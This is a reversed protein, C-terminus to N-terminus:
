ANSWSFCKLAERKLEEKKGQPLAYYKERTIKFIQYFERDELYVNHDPDELFKRLRDPDINTPLKIRNEDRLSRRRQLKNYGVGKQYKKCHNPSDNSSSSEVEDNHALTPTSSSLPRPSKGIRRGDDMNGNQPRRFTVTPHNEAPPHTITTAKQFPTAGYVGSNYKQLFLKSSSRTPPAPVPPANDERNKRSVSKKEPLTSYTQPPKVSRFGPPRSPVLKGNGNISSSSSSLINYVPGNISKRKGDVQDKLEEREVFHRFSDSSDNLSFSFDGYDIPTVDFESDKTLDSEEVQQQLDECCEPHWIESGQLYMEEGEGFIQGCKACHSCSPHYHKDGAQLVKGTIYGGCSACSVGFETQYDQECYPMGDRVMYDGALLMGCKYCNFCWLHWQKELALLLSQDSKIDNECGACMSPNVNNNDYANRSTKNVSKDVNNNNNNALKNGNSINHVEPKNGNNMNNVESKSVNNINNSVSKNVNKINNHLLNNVNVNNNETKNGNNNNNSESKNCNSNNNNNEIKNGYKNNTRINGNNNNNTSKSGNNNNNNNTSQNGNNNSNKNNAMKNGNNNGNDNNNNNTSKSCHNNNNNTSKNGNNDNNNTSISGNNDNNYTSKSGNNDNNYTSKSGNNDNNNTSKNGNNNNNTSKNNNNEPKNDNNNNNATKNINNINNNALKNGGDDNDNDTDNDNNDNNDNNLNKDTTLIYCDSCFLDKGDFCIEVNAQFPQQCRECAFCDPHYLSNIASITDGEVYNRCGKCQTGLLKHYDNICYFKGESFFFGTQILSQECGGVACSFCNQHYYKGHASIVDGYCDGFCHGCKVNSLQVM